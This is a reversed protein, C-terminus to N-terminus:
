LATEGGRFKRWTESFTRKSEPRYYDGVISTDSAIFSRSQVTISTDSPMIFKLVPANAGLVEFASKSLPM